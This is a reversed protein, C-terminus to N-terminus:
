TGEDSRLKKGVLKLENPTPDDWDLKAQHLVNVDLKLGAIIPAIKGTLDFIESAKGVCDRLTM